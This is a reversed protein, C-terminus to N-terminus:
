NRVLLTSHVPRKPSIGGHLNLRVTVGSGCFPDTQLEFYVNNAKESFIGGCLNLWVNVGSGCFTDTELEFHVNKAKRSFHWWLSLGSQCELYM